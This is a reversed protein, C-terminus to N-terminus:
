RACVGRPPVLGRLDGQDDQYRRAGTEGTGRELGARGAANDLRLNAIVPTTGSDTVDVSIGGYDSLDWGGVPAMFNVDPYGATADSRVELNAGNAAVTTNHPQLAAVAAADTADFLPRPAPDDPTALAPHAFPLTAALLCLPASLGVFRPSSPFNMTLNTACAETGANM